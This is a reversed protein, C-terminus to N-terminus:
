KTVRMLKFKESFHRVVNDVVSSVCARANKRRKQNPRKPSFCALEGPSQRVRRGPNLGKIARVPSLETVPINKTM